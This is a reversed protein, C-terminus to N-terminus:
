EDTLSYVKGELTHFQTANCNCCSARAAEREGFLFLTGGETYTERSSMMCMNIIARTFACRTHNVHGSGARTRPEADNTSWTPDRTNHVLVPVCSAVLPSIVAIDEVRLSVSLMGQKVVVCERACARVRVRVSQKMSRRRRKTPKQRSHFPNTTTHKIEGIPISTITNCRWAGCERMAWSDTCTWENM